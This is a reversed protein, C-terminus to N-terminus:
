IWPYARRKLVSINSSVKRFLEVGIELLKYFTSRPTWLGSPM